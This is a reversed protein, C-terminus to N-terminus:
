DRKKKCDAMFGNKPINKKLRYMFKLYGKLLAFDIGRNQDKKGRNAAKERRGQKRRQRRKGRYEREELKDIKSNKHINFNQRSPIYRTSCL